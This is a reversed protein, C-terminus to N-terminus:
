AALKELKAQKDLKAKERKECKKHWENSMEDPTKGTIAFIMNQHALPWVEGISTGDGEMHWCDFWSEITKTSKYLAKLRAVQGEDNLDAVYLCLQSLAAYNREIIFPDDDTYYIERSVQNSTIKLLEILSCALGTLQRQDISDDDELYSCLIREAARRTAVQIASGRGGLKLYDYTTDDGWQELAEAKRKKLFEKFTIRGARFEEFLNSQEEM